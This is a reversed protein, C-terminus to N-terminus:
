LGSRQLCTDCVYTAAVCQCGIVPYPITEAIRKCRRCQWICDKPLAGCRACPLIDEEAVLPELITLEAPKEVTSM